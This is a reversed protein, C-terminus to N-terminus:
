KGEELIYSVGRPNFLIKKYVRGTSNYFNQERTILTFVRSELHIKKFKEEFLEFNHSRLRYM